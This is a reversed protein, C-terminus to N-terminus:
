KQLGTLILLRNVDLSIIDTKGSAIAEAAVEPTIFDPTIIPLGGSAKKFGPAWQTFENEGDPAFGKGFAEYSGQSVNIFNAGAESLLKVVKCAEEHDLGDNMYENGSIRM